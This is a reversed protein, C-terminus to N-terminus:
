GNRDDDDVGLDLATAALLRRLTEDPPAEDDVRSAYWRLVAELVAPRSNSATQISGTTQGDRAVVAAAHQSSLAALDTEVVSLPDDAAPENARSDNRQQADGTDGSTDVADGTAGSVSEDRDTANGHETEEDSNTDSDIVRVAPVDPDIGSQGTSIVFQGEDTTEVGDRKSIDLEEPDLV